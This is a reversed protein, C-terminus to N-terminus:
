HGVRLNESDALRVHVLQPADIRVVALDTDPDDGVLQAAYNRGDPLNVTIQTADHVVHSNTLIFGDPAIIFGSGSGGIERSGRQSSLRQKIDINVVAPAVRDAAGVVTRSYEDLLTDEGHGPAPGSRELRPASHSQNLLAGLFPEGKDPFASTTM